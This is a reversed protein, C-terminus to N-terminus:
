ISHALAMTGGVEKRPPLHPAPRSVPDEAPGQAWAFPISAHCFLSQLVFAKTQSMVSSRLVWLLVFTKSCPGLGALPWPARKSPAPATNSHRGLSHGAVLTLSPSLWELPTPNSLPREAAASWKSRLRPIKHPHAPSITPQTQGASATPPALWSAVFIQFSNGAHMKTRNLVLVVQRAWPISSSLTKGTAGCFFGHYKSLPRLRGTSRTVRFCLSWTQWSRGRLGLAFKCLLRQWPCACQRCPRGMSPTCQTIVRTWSLCPKNTYLGKGAAGNSFPAFTPRSNSNRNQPPSFQIPARQSRFVSVFTIFWLRRRWPPDISVHLHPSLRCFFANTPVYLGLLWPLAHGARGPFLFICDHCFVCAWLGCKITNARRAFLWLPTTDALRALVFWFKRGRCPLPCAIATSHTQRTQTFCPAPPSASYAFYLLCRASKFWPQRLMTRAITVLDTAVEPFAGKGPSADAFRYLPYSCRLGFYRHPCRFFFFLAHIRTGNSIDPSGDHFSFPSCSLGWVDEFPPLLASPLVSCLLSRFLFSWLLFVAVPRLFALTELVHTRMAILRHGASCACALDIEAACATVTESHPFSAETCFRIIIHTGRAIPMHGTVHRCPVYVM